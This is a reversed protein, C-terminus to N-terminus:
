DFIERIMDEENIIINDDDDLYKEYTGSIDNIVEPPVTLSINYQLEYLKDDQEKTLGLKDMAKIHKKTNKHRTREKSNPKHCILPKDQGCFCDVTGWSDCGLKSLHMKYQESRKRDILRLYVDGIDVCQGSLLSKYNEYNLINNM